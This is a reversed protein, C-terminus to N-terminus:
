GSFESEATYRLLAKRLRVVNRDNERSFVVSDMTDRMIQLGRGHPLLEFEGGPEPVPRALLKEIEEVQIPTGDDSIEIQVQDEDGAIVIDIDGQRCDHYSHEICNNLAECVALQVHVCDISAVNIDDLIARISARVPWVQDLYNAIRICLRFDAM